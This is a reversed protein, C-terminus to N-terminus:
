YKPTLGVYMDKYHKASQEWSVDKNMNRVVMDDWYPRSEFYLTKARNIADYLLGSEYRDFTFGNGTNDFLNYPQVTDKLGGTERVIPVSGYRMSILQTLGCPEFRSPVLLADCGAYINHAVNENYAIYACFNGKYANEYYRFADEYEADGTGLVVVQTHEDMIHPIVSNVLDLGKQNTLRSILGIVIKHDDVQLGLSEQLAKKNAKKNEIVNTSDYPAALLKDTAPNWIDTDIGNVIGVLKNHHYRLHEELGEGYEETQIEGAYTNSVTTVVNSYTIGGKLMNADLWNQTLCDKNFVYDPLGSWYQITKRDYIGQFRLNHITLVCSARGVNSDKFCTRLYLPVLAAQWDHCHVVDPTWDLYNLAALAAKGFYCFKPIDDILNTYPNGWSFFEDNDIFDYVVGDEQYEMIGVYYQKGDACLDMSFSGKYEMKEQFKQPICKYRPIIVKVDCNLKALSKPLASMVDGLGGTKVFPYCESGIFAVSRRPGLDVPAPAPTEQVVVEPEVEVKKEVEPAVTEEVKPEEKKVTEKKTATAKKTTKKATAKKTTKKPAEEKVTETKAAAKKATTKKTTAKKTATKKATEKKPEAEKVPAEEKVAETKTTATKKATTKKPAAKKATTKKATEKVPAEEKVAETKAATAKKATTKKTTTTKKATAKKPEAEAVTEVKATAEKVPTEKKTATKTATAKKVTEKVPAAEKTTDKAATTVTEEKVAAAKTTRKKTTKKRM